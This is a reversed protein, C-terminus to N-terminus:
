RFWGKLPSIELYLWMRFFWSNPHWCIFPPPVCNLGYTWNLQETTDLEKFGWPSCCVLSGQGDGFGLAQEHGDLWHHLGIMEDETMGKEEQRWVKRADPDKGILWNKADPAWLIQAEVETDTRVIFIWPQNGKPNVPQIEKCDMPSQLTKELVVTWFCWNKLVWNEKHDLEWMWVHSSSFGFSQSLLVKTMLTIDRSKLMSDLNTMTKRGLLLFRKIEHSCDGDATIKSGLFNFGTVTEMTEGDIQRSTISSSAMIKTKQNNLKLDAKESEEKVNMLFSKLEEESEEMLTTDDANRLNNITKGALKIGTQAEDLRANWAIYEAHTLYSLICGQCVLKGTKSSTWQVMDLELQQKKVQM